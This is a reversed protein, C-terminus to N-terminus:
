AVETLSVPRTLALRFRGRGTKEIRLHPGHEDLRRRLLVLRAELNDGVDPLGIAADLRLERNSFDCRGQAHEKLLKWLIAGAVGKILYEGGIFISGNSAFRRVQLPEGSASPRPPAAPAAEPAESGAQLLDIAAGLHGAMAVLMDEDEFGFVMDRPSEVFLVGLLRGASMVPVALQSHPEKLGPYPIEPGAAADPASGELSSRMAQSYLYANTMHMIRVPTRERAAMGIVGQGLGIESGVGSTPYGCSAVTYLRQGAGDLMLVIAHRVEMFDTLTALVANLAEDLSTGRALRESCRRAAALMGGRAPPAPMPEGALAEIREVAYIDSGLLRFVDQMGTHSAIGALQAKMGEFLPGETETRLYRLHLRYYAATQPHLLLVTAYPNALINQRTKNFFQFSLAVHREDVYYVQSIYAVNPTGDAACTAMVAPIVGELCPRIDCLQPGNM